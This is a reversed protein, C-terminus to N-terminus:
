QKVYVESMFGPLNENTTSTLRDQNLSFLFVTTGEFLSLQSNQFQWVGSSTNSTNTCRIDFLGGTIATIDIVVVTSSWTGDSNIILTGSACPLESLINSTTNGDENIDQPPNINLESLNWTGVVADNPNDVAANDDSSCAQFIFIYALLPVLVKSRKM